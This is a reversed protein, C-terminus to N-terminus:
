KEDHFRLYKMINDLPGYHIYTVGDVLKIDHRELNFRGRKSEINKVHLEEQSGLSSTDAYPREPSFDFEKAAHVDAKHQKQILRLVMVGLAASALLTIVEM